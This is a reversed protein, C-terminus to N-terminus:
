YYTEQIREDKLWIYQTNKVSSNVGEAKLNQLYICSIRQKIDNNRRTIENEPNTMHWLYGFGAEGFIKKIFQHWKSKCQVTAEKTRAIKYMITSLKEAKGNVLKSWYNIMRLKVDHELPLIGLEGYIMYDPTSSKLHLITKLCRIRFKELSALNEFGWIESGFLLIPDVGKLFM